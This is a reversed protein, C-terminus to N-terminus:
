DLFHFENSGLLVQLYDQLGAPNEPAIFRLAEDLELRLPRRAFLLQYARAVRAETSEAEAELRKALAAAQQQMLPSNLTFLQQLPTTTVVRVPNHTVPDPFDHLRLLDNLERRKVSGYITRRRNTAASLDLPEGGQARDLTGAVSLMADRWQEIDLRRRPFRSLLRLDADKEPPTGSAQRYTASLVIERHLWKLSWGNEIFQSALADLLAPHSPLEGQVGFDSPTNVIGKGFHQLWIRNVIVRAVLDRTVGTLAKALDLRGSGSSFRVPENPTFVLPMRRPVQVGTRNPNGRVEVALDKPEDKYVLRSGHKKVEPEVFLSGDRVGNVLLANFQSDAKLEAVEKEIAELRAAHDENKKAKLKKAEDDLKAVRSRLEVVRAADIEESLAHEATRTSAFVGALGYYDEQTFPDSKHDHCRACAMNFGLFVSSLTHVREEYEDSVISKIIEVPLQLEKWYSPSMGMMGLAARDSPRAEPMQDAAIQLAVFRDFPMDENLASIVWDRYPYAKGKSEMWSEGIDCYRVLDLWHRAWREGYASSDLLSNVRREYADSAADSEFAEVEEPTPPLGTLDFMLRRLLIARPAEPARSLGVRKLEAGIMADIVAAAEGVAKQSGSPPPQLPKLSWFQRAAALDLTKKTAAHASAEPFPLGSAIWARFVEVDKVLLKEKPPMQLDPEHYTVARYLLSADADGVKAAPGSEGGRLIAERSDLLLGGKQKGSATSHCSLCKDVLLPRVKQEFHELAARDGAADGAARLFSGFLGFVVLATVSRIAGRLIVGM